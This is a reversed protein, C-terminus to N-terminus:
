IEAHHQRGAAIALAKERAAQERDDEEMEEVDKACEGCLNVRNLERDQGCLQCTNM